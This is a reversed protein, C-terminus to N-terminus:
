ANLEEMEKKSPVKIFPLEIFKKFATIKKGFSPTGYQSEEVFQRAITEIDEPDKGTLQKVVKTPGGAAFRGKKLERSYFITQVAIFPNYGFEKDAGLIAKMFLWEPIPILKIKKGLVKSYAEAVEIMTISKPGTPHVKQGFYPAPNKLLAAAVRTLDGTSIWPCLGNGFPNPLQGLQVVSETLSIMNDAFFGPNYYVVNLGSAELLQYSKKTDNTLLSEQNEFEALWQGMFVTAKIKTEQAAKIFLKINKPLGKWIPYCYYVTDIDTLANKLLDYNDFTGLAIEAGLKELELARQNRSRVYIRVPYGEKLLEKTVGFGTTGTALTILIKEKM